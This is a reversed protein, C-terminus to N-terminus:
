APVVGVAVIGSFLSIIPQILFFLWAVRAAGVNQFFGKVCDTLSPM